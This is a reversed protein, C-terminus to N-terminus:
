IGIARIHDSRGTALIEDLGDGDLDGLVLDLPFTPPGVPILKSFDLGEEGGLVIDFRASGSRAAMLLDAHVDGNLNGAALGGIPYPLTVPEMAEHRPHSLTLRRFPQRVCLVLLFILGLAMAGLQLGIKIQKAIDTKPPQRDRLM